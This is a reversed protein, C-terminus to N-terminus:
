HVLAAGVGCSTISFHWCSKETKQQMSVKQSFQDRDRMVGLSILAYYNLLYTAEM